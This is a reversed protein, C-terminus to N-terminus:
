GPPRVRGRAEGEASSPLADPQTSRQAPVAPTESREQSRHHALARSMTRAAGAVVVLNFLLQVMVLQRALQGEAHIDGYGVTTLTTMAFYLSDTKTTLGVFQTDDLRAIIFDALAFCIVGAVAALLLHDIRIDQDDAQLEHAVTRVVMWLILAFLVAAVGARITLSRTTTEELVPLLYYFGVLCAIMVTFRGMRRRASTPRPTRTPTM